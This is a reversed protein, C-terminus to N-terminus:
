LINALTYDIRKLLKEKGLVEIMEGMDPGHVQGTIAVRVPMFLNKGGVGLEKKLQKFIDKVAQATLDPQEKIKRRFAELTAPVGEGAIIDRAEDNELVVEETFFISLKEPIEGVYSVGDKVVAVAKTLWEFDEDCIEDKIYGAERLHPLALKAIRQAPSKKVYVGNMWNLKNIDFVAPAKSVRDLSFNEIIEEKSLIEEKGEPSWGLLALFNFIAEPLYGKERYQGIFNDGHRKSLKTKDPGLIMSTHAFTPPKFGLAEYILLQKPTNTLHDDGRIIHTIDMTADDVVVAFNYTPMGDSKFIVMDGGLTDSDIEVRGKILDNFVVTKGRPVVFRLVPKIGQRRYEEAQQPTLNRCRGSYQPIGLKAMSIEKDREIQENSCYCYYAKGEDILKQAYKKYIDLRESQRYPGYQGLKDVGEDWDIGLWKLENFIYGEYEKTSRALDTDEIRLVFCGQKGSKKLNKIFLYNFLATRMNGIHIPGTPSPAFRVRIETM